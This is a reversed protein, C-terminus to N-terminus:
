QQAPLARLGSWMMGAILDSATDIDLDSQSTRLWAKAASESAGVVSSALVQAQPAALGTDSAIHAAIREVVASTVGEVREAADVDDLMDSDFLLRYYQMDDAVFEFFARVSAQVVDRNRGPQNLVAGITEELNEGAKELVALYLDHKSSFYQYVIPKSLGLTSAVDDMGTGHYGNSVFHRRAADLIAERREERSVRSTSTTNM